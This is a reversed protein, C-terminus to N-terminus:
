EPSITSQQRLLKQYLNEIKNIGSNLKKDFFRGHDARVNLLEVAMEQIEQRAINKPISGDRLQQVRRLVGALLRSAVTTRFDGEYPQKGMAEPFEQLLSEALSEAKSFLSEAEALENANQASSLRVGADKLLRAVERWRESLSM